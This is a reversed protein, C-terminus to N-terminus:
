ILIRIIKLFLIPKKSMLRLLFKIIKANMMLKFIMSKPFDMDGYLSVLQEIKQTKAIQFLNEFDSNSFNEFLKRLIFHLKLQKGIAAACPKEYHKRIFTKSFQNMKFCKQICKAAFKAAILLM